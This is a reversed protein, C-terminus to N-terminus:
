HLKKAVDEDQEQPPAVDSGSEGGRERGDREEKLLNRAAGSAADVAVLRLSRVFNDIQVAIKETALNVQTELMEEIEKKGNEVIMRYQEESRELIERMTADVECEKHSVSLLMSTVRDELAASQEVIDAAKGSREELFRKIFKRAPNFALAFGVCFAFDVILHTSMTM